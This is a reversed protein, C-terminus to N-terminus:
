IVFYISIRVFINVYIHFYYKCLCPVYRYIGFHIVSRFSRFPGNGGSGSNFVLCVLSAHVNTRYLRRMSENPSGSPYSRMDLSCKGNKEM